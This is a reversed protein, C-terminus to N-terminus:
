SEYEYDYIRISDSYYWHYMDRRLKARYIKGQEKRKLNYFVIGEAMVPNGRKASFRSTLFDKFWTSWNEFIRDHEHYSRYSLHKIAKEFPYWLCHDLKYINQNIHKGIVEGVQEGDKEIYGKALATFIGQIIAVRGKASFIDLPDIQNKRNYVSLLRGKETLLKVNTGDLKEVAITAPDDFVWNYEENKEPTVLYVKPERLQLQKGYKRWDDENVKYSKRIFPCEIKPFNSLEIM